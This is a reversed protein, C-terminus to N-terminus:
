LGHAFTATVGETGGTMRAASVSGHASIALTNANGVNGPVVATLTVVTALATASVVGKITTTVSANISAALNTATITDSGGINFQNATAGSVVATFATGNTTVTDTAVMAAITVTGTAAVVTPCVAVNSAFAGLAFRGFMTEIKRLYWASPGGQTKLATALNNENSKVLIRVTSNVNSANFSAM